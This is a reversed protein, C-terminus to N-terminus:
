MKEQWSLENFQVADMTSLQFPKIQCTIHKITFAFIGCVSTPKLNFKRLILIVDLNCSHLLYLTWLRLNVKIDGFSWFKDCISQARSVVPYQISAKFTYNYNGKKWLEYCENCKCIVFLYHYVITSHALIKKGYKTKVIAVCCEGHAKLNKFRWGFMSVKINITAVLLEQHCVVIVHNYVLADFIEEGVNRRRCNTRWRCSLFIIFIADDRYLNFVVSTSYFVNHRYLILVFWQEEARDLLIFHLLLSFPWYFQQWDVAWLM